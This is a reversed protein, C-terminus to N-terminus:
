IHILSLKLREDSTSSITTNTAFVDDFRYSPTGLDTANDRGPIIHGDTTTGGAQTNNLDGYASSGGNSNIASWNGLDGPDTGDAIWDKMKWGHTQINDGLLYAQVGNSGDRLYVQLM